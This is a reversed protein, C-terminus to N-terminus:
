VHCAQFTHVSAGSTDSRSHSADRSVTELGYSALRLEYAAGFRFLFKCHLLATMEYTYYEYVGYLKKSTTLKKCKEAKNKISSSSYRIYLFGNSGAGDRSLFYLRVEKYVCCVGVNM